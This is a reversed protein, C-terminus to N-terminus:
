TKCPHRQKPTCIYCPTIRYKPDMKIYIPPRPHTACKKALSMYMCTYLTLNYLVHWMSYLVGLTHHVHLCMWMSEASFWFPTIAIWLHETSFWFPAIAISKTCHNHWEPEWRFMTSYHHIAQIYMAHWNYMHQQDTLIVILSRSCVLSFKYSSNM